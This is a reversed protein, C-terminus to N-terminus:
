RNKAFFSAMRYQQVSVFLNLVALVVIGALSAILAKKWKANM